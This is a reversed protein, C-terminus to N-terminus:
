DTAGEGVELQKRLEPDLELLTEGEASRADFEDVVVAETVEPATLRRPQEHVAAPATLLSIKTEDIGPFQRATVLVRSELSNAFKNYSDVTREIAKRLGEAHGALTGIRQYLTNGLDFLKKAEDSVAQQQWTFAVTKLVAWLNVPSALAVRKGFAYDLLAPDAELASSLLSESPIFAIVFEPSADLGEWYTKKALADIHSRVARVHRTILEKRRAGEYRETAEEALAHVGRHINANYGQYYDVLAQIVQRPKQSTAANDLYVLPQGHVQRSLIPFDARLAAFDMM